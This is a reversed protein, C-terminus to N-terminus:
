EAHGQGLWVTTTKQTNNNEPQETLIIHLLDWSPPCNEALVCGSNGECESLLKRLSSISVPVPISHIDEFGIEGEPCAELSQWGCPKQQLKM